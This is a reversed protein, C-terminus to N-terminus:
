RDESCCTAPLPRLREIAELDAQVEALAPALDVGEPVLFLSDDPLGKTRRPFRVAFARYLCHEGNALEVPTWDALEWARILEFPGCEHTGVTRAGTWPKLHRDLRAFIGRRGGKNGGVGVRVVGRYLEDLGRLVYVGNRAKLQRWNTTVDKIM